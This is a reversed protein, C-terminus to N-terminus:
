DWDDDCDFHEVDMDRIKGTKANIEYEYEASNTYFEIEYVRIGDEYDLKTKTFAASSASVGADKLAISKAKAKGIYTSSSTNKRPIKYNEIDKDYSIIKGNSALIEYDYETNGSYFEIEYVRRGDEYGLKAKVFTAKSASVGAHKLAISKAKAKTIRKSSTSEKPISYGEIDKDFSLIEGSSALIEYDYETYTDADYFEVDYEWNRDDYELVARIFTVDSSKLGAHELAIEKAKQEGITDGASGTGQQSGTSGAPTGDEFSDADTVLSGDQAPQSLTVTNTSSDWSVTKGMLKGIARVPLYTTGDYLLPYVTDGNVDKFTQTVGDVVVTFDTRIQASVNSRKADEDPTGSVRSGDRSGSLTITLSSQDWNVVKDMLEGIARVPLYTTGNYLVPHVEEGQVNYFTQTKGDVVIDYDPCIKATVDIVDAAGAAAGCLGLATVACLLLAAARRKLSTKFKPTKM